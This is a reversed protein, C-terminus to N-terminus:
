GWKPDTGCDVDGNISTERDRYAVIEDFSVLLCKLRKNQYSAAYESGWWIMNELRRPYIEERQRVRSWFIVVSFFVSFKSSDYLISFLCDCINKLERKENKTQRSQIINTLKESSKKLSPFIKRDIKKSWQISLGTKCTFFTIKNMKVNSSMSIQSSFALSFAIIIMM